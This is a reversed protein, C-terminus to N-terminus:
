KDALAESSSVTNGPDKKPRHGMRYPYLPCTKITCNRVEAPHGCTCDLCKARIAKVPPKVQNDTDAPTTDLDRVAEALAANLTEYEEPTMDSETYM